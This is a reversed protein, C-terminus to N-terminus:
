RQYASQLAACIPSRQELAAWDHVIARGRGLRTILGESRLRSLVRSLTDPNLALYDAMDNRPLPLEIDIGRALHKGLMLGAELLFSAVREESTLRSVIVNHAEVRNARVRMQRMFELALWGHRAAATDFVDQRLRTVEGARAARVTFDPLAAMFRSSIIEGPYCIGLILRRQETLHSQLVVLGSRVLYITEVDDHRAPLRQGRRVRFRCGYAALIEGIDASTARTEPEADGHEAPASRMESAGLQM